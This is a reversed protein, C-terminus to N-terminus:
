LAAITSKGSGTGGIIATTKGAEISFSIGDLAPVDAGPYRFSVNCFELLPSDIPGEASLLEIDQGEPDRVSSPTELVERLRTASVAARPYMVFLSSLIMLSFLIHTAYQVFAILEGIQLAGLNVRISGFWMVAVTTVNMVLTLLPMLILLVRQANLATMTLDRNAADFRRRESETRDFARIVRVGGLAERLVLNVADMKVQMKRFLPVGVKAVFVIALAIFPLAVLLIRSLWLDTSLALAISGVCMLPARALMHLGTQVFNQAQLVDNTSRTILTSTGLRDFESLSFSQVKKFVSFRLDRAFGNATKAAFFAAAIASLSGFATVALMLLGVRIIHGSDGAVVGGDVISAMLRPLALDAVTHALVLFLALVAQVAFPRIYRLLYRM